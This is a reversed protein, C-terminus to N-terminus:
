VRARCSARGIECYGPNGNYECVRSNEPTVDLYNLVYLDLDSDNDVDLWIVSTGWLTDGVNAETTVDTFTGDGNNHLLCNKGYNALYLDPFGDADFDGVACGQGYAPDTAGAHPTM